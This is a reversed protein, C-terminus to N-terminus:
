PITVTLSNNTMDPDVVGPGPTIVVTLTDGSAADTGACRPDNPHETCFKLLYILVKKADNANCQCRFATQRPPPCAVSAACHGDFEKDIIRFTCNGNCALLCSECNTTSHGNMGSQTITNITTGARKLTFTVAFTFPAQDDSMTPQSYVGLTLSDGSQNLEISTVNLDVDARAALSGCILLLGVALPKTM